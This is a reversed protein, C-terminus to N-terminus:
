VIREQKLVMEILKEMTNQKVAASNKRVIFVMDTPAIRSLLGQISQYMIRRIRNRKTARKDVKSSVIVAARTTESSKRYRLTFGDGEARVGRTAVARLEQKPLRNVKPLM